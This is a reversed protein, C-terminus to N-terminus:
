KKPLNNIIEILKSNLTGTPVANAFQMALMKEQDFSPMPMAETSKVLKHRRKEVGRWHEALEAQTMQSPDKTLPKYDPEPDKFATEQPLAVQTTKARAIPAAAKPALKKPLPKSTSGIKNLGQNRVVPMEEVTKTVEPVFRDSNESAGRSATYALKKLVDVEVANFPFNIELTEVKSTERRMGLMIEMQEKAFKRIQNQVFKAAIPDAGSDAFLDHNIIMEYLRGQELRLRADSLVETYDEEQDSESTEAPEEYKQTPQQAPAPESAHVAEQIAKKQSPTIPPPIFQGQDNQWQGNVREVPNERFEDGDDFFNSSM